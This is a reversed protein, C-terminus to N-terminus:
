NISDAGTPQDVLVEIVVTGDEQRVTRFQTGSPTTNWTSEDPESKAFAGCCRNFCCCCFCFCCYCCGTFLFCSIVICKFCKNNTLLYAKFNEEGLQDAMELGRDGYEDYIQRQTPNSLVTYARNVEKFRAEAEANNPNKDPHYRLAM